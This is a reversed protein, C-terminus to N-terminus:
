GADFFLQLRSGADRVDAAALARGGDQHGLGIGIGFEDAEVVVVGGDLAGAGRGLAGAYGVANLELNGFGAFEGAFIVIEDGDEIAQM